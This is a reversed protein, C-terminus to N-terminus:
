EAEEQGEHAPENMKIWAYRLGLAALTIMILAFVVNGYDAWGGRLWDPTAIVCNTLYLAQARADCYGDAIQSASYGALVQEQELLAGVGIGALLMLLPLMRSAAASGNERLWNTVKNM